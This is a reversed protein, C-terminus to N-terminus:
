VAAVAFDFPICDLLVSGTDDTSERQVDSSKHVIHETHLSSSREVLMKSKFNSQKPMFTFM